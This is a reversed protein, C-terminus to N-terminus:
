KKLLRHVMWVFGGTLILNLVLSLMGLTIVYGSYGYGLAILLVAAGVEGRPFMAVSLALREKVTAERRYCLLSFCKGLNSLLTLAIVHGVTAAVPIAGLEVKPFSLGVCVMFGGKIVSDLSFRNFEPHPSPEHHQRHILCGLMFAPILVELHIHVAKKIVSVAATLGIAYFVLWVQESKWPLSNQWRFSAFLIFTILALLLISEWHFGNLIIQVPALLLIVVLDDLVALTRAKQFVWTMSLGAAMLMAFLVGASTPSSSLGAVLAPQWTSKLVACFYVFWLLAPLAAASFAVVFDWGYDAIRRKDVSFELGVEIMIYALCVSTIFSLIERIGSFDFVQGAVIGATLLLCFIILM